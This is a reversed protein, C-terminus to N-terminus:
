VGMCVCVFVHMVINNVRLDRSFGVKNPTRILLLGRSASRTDSEKDVRINNWTTEHDDGICCVITYHMDYVIYQYGDLYENDM